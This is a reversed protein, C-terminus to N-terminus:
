TRDLEIVQLSAYSELGWRGNIYGVGSWKAGGFPVTPDIGGHKNVKATGVELRAAVEAGRELDQTWVSGMLGFHTANARALAEDVDRFPMVPLAPGFQEEDVLRVGDAIGTVITPPYFYGPRDLPVGGTVVRAGARKADEVLDDVREFQPANNLPGLQTEPESGPGVRVSNAVEALAEVLAGYIREHAYVRKTAICVQGANAFASWFLKGAIAAPDADELVIAPDNGGLELVFRKLDPAAAAAVKKGTAVSGTFCLMRVAPHGTIAAGLDDGGSVVNFVGPPLVEQLLEGLLLTALPTYPSPKLVVTNGMLLAPATKVGVLFVPFNWPTISGVVGLPRRRVEVRASEDDRLVDHPIEMRAFERFWGAAANAEGEAKALPKGQEMTLTRALAEANAEIVDACAELASRRATEDRSWAPFAGQAADMAADLQASTCAPAEAFVAGTAPDIVGFTGETPALAGGITMHFAKTTASV